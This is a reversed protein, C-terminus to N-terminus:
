IKLFSRVDLKQTVMRTKGSEPLPIQDVFAIEISISDKMIGLMGDLWSKIEDTNRDTYGEARSIFLVARGPEEQYFSFQRVNPFTKIWPMLRPIIEGSKGILFDNIRGQLSDVVVHSRGCGPCSDSSETVVDGTRYRIFPMCQSTFGTGVIEKYGDALDMFESYGFLPHLHMKHTQECEGGIVAQETMSYMSFVRVGFVEEILTRQWDFINEAYSIVSKLKPFVAPNEHKIYSSVVALVSPFGMIHEPNFDAIMKVFRSLWQSSLHRISLILKNGFRTYPLSIRGGSSVMPSFMVERVGPVYGARGLINKRFALFAADVARDRYIRLPIGSSGSTRKLILAKLSLREDVMSEPSKSVEERLLLPIRRFDDFDKIKEPYFDIEPFTKRYYPINEAAHVLVNKAQAFQYDRFRGSDWSESEKLLMTWRVFAPGLLLRNRIDYPITEYVHLAMNELLSSKRLFKKVTEQVNM